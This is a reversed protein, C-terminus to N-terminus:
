PNGAPQRAPSAAPQQAQEDAATTQAPANPDVLLPDDGPILAFAHGSWTGRLQPLGADAETLALSGVLVARDSIEVRRMLETIKLYVGDVVVTVPMTVLVTGPVHSEPAGKPTEPDGFTVSILQVGAAEAAAQLDVLLSPQGLGAPILRELLQLAKTYEAQRTAVEELGKIERRLPTQQALLQETDAQVEAIEASRPQHLGFFYLSALVVAAVAGAAPVRWRRV